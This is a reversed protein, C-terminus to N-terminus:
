VTPTFVVTGTMAAGVASTLAQYSFEIGPGDSSQEVCFPARLPVGGVQSLSPTIFLLTGTKLRVAQDEYVHRTPGALEGVPSSDQSAM